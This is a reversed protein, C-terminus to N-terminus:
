SAALPGRGPRDLPDPDVARGELRAELHDAALQPGVLRAEVGRGGLEADGPDAARPDDLHDGLQEQGAHDRGVPDDVAPQGLPRRPDDGVPPGERVDEVVALRPDHDGLAVDPRDLEGLRGQIGPAWSSISWAPTVM